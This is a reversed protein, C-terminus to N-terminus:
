AKLESTCYACRTAKIAISSFCYPCEKETPESPPAEEKWKLTNIGRILFFVSISIIFFNIVTNLFLGYSITVAGASQAEALSSYPGATTGSKLIIFLNSFDVNGVLLGIPPMIIDSVLSKVIVGFAAGMIIGVAMDVVNGRLAFKKFEEFM